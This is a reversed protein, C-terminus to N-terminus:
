ADSAKACIDDSITGTFAQKAPAAAITATGAAVLFYVVLHKM